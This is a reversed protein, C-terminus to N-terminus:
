EINFELYNGYDSKIKGSDIVIWDFWNRGPRGPFQWTPNSYIVTSQRTTLNFKQLWMGKYFNPDRNGSGGTRLIYLSNVSKVYLFDVIVQAENVKPIIVEEPRNFLSGGFNNDGPNFIIRTADDWEHSGGVFDFKGDGNLDVLELHFARRQQPIAYNNSKVFHGTGDNIFIDLTGLSTMIVDPYGDGNLDGATGGHQFAVTNSFYDMRWRGDPQSLVVRSREGPFPTVDWGHCAIVFDIKGDKNFDAALVKRPHICGPVSNASDYVATNNEVWAGNVKKWFKLPSPLATDITANRAWSALTMAIYGESGDSYRFYARANASKGEEPRIAPDYIGEWQRNEYSLTSIPPVIKPPGAYADGGGGGCATAIFSVLILSILRIM